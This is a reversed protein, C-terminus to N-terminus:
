AGRGTEPGGGLTDDFHEATRAMARELDPTAGDFPHGAGFTHGAGEVLELRASGGAAAALRRAEDVPVSEDDTGHVFLAPVALAGAAELIDLREGNARLDDLVNRDLPMTQGTRANRIHVRRGAEWTEAYAEEYRSASAVSAWTVLSRVQRRSAAKLVCTGGGRSHGLLGFAPAPDLALTGLRGAALGDLVAELDLLEKTFTNRAFADLDDFAEVSERVGSGDFNFVVVPRRTREALERGVWPFFGWDKFGKFGHCVVIATGSLPSSPRYLDGRLEAGPLDIRFPDRSVDGEAEVRANTRVEDAPADSEGAPGSM